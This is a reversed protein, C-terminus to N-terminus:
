YKYNFPTIRVTSKGRLRNPPSLPGFSGYRAARTAATDMLTTTAERTRPCPVMVLVIPAAGKRLRASILVQDLAVLDLTQMMRYDFQRACATWHLQRKIRMTCSAQPIHVTSM